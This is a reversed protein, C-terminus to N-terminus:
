QVDDDPPPLQYGLEADVTSVGEVERLADVDSTRGTVMGLGELVTDVELGRQRLGEVVGGMAALHEEDVTVTVRSVGEGAGDPVDAPDTDAPEIPEDPLDEDHPSM